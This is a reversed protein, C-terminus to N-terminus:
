GGWTLTTVSEIHYTQPFMDIPEVSDIRYGGERLHRLDRALTAPDCSVYVVRRPHRDLLAQLLEPACGVRSPDLVVADIRHDMAPLIAETKGTEFRVNELDPTNAAADATAAPSEEIGVITDVYPSILATFTGVGCYADIVTQDPQPELRDLVLLALIDAISYSGDRAYGGRPAITTPLTRVERRTNVQFFSAAAIRFRRDLIEEDLYRQGSDLEPVMPLTPNVLLSGTNAGYRVTIQHARLGACRRQVQTLVANIAQHSIPCADVPLLRHTGRYTYGVDGYKRGITFRAHNRYEWPEVMGIAPRVLDAADAFGGIRGLQDVIIQRKLTLQAEYDAHQWSCGGCRGFYPCRPEVRDPSAQLVEVIAAAAYDKKRAQIAARIREGPLGFPVFVVEGNLRGICDGGFAAATLELEVLNATEESEM